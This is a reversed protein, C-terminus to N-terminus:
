ERTMRAESSRGGSRTARDKRDAAYDAARSAEDPTAGNNLATLYAERGRGVRARSETADRDGHRDLAELEAPDVRSSTRRDQTARRARQRDRNHARDGRTTPAADLADDEVLEADIIESAKASVEVGDLDEGSVEFDVLADGIFDEFTRKTIGVEINQTGSLNARDLLDKAAALKINDAVKPSSLLEILKSAALDSAM